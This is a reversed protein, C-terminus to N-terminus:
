KMFTALLPIISVNGTNGAAKFQQVVTRYILLHLYLNVLFMACTLIGTLIEFFNM